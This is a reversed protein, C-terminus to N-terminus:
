ALTGLRSNNKRTRKAKKGAQKSKDAMAEYDYSDADLLYTNGGPGTLLRHGIFSNARDKPKPKEVTFRVLVGQFVEYDTIRWVACVFGSITAVLLEGVWQDPERVRWWGRLAEELQEKSLETSFGIYDREEVRPDVQKAEAVRVVLAAPHPPEVPPWQALESLKGKSVFLRSGSQHTPGLLGSRALQRASVHNLGLTDAIDSISALDLETVAHEESLHKPNLKALTAYVRMLYKSKSRRQLIPAMSLTHFLDKCLTHIASSKNM